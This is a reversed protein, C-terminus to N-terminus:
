NSYYIKYNYATSGHDNYVEVTVYGTATATFERPSTYGNYANMFIETGDNQWASVYLSGSTNQNSGNQWTITIRQGTSVALRYYDKTKPNLNAVGSSSYNPMNYHNAAYAFAGQVWVGERGAANVPAITYYYSVGGSVDYDTYSSGNVSGIKGPAAAKTSSRYINYSVADPVLEWGLAISSAGPSTAKIGTVMAPPLAAVGADTGDNIGYCYAMYNYRASSHDNKVEVTVYGSAAATFAQPSTYGNYANKFIETGDNQWASVYLSGSTNQSYGDEWSITYANGSTVPFRYYHKQKATLPVLRRKTLPPLAFYEEAFGFVAASKGTELGNVIASVAYYYSSGAAVATDTYSTNSSEGLYSYDKGNTSRYVKYNSANNVSSWSLPIETKGPRTIKLNPIETDAAVTVAATGSATEGSYSSWAAKVTLTRASEDGAVSLLGDQSIATASSNNGEVSWAVGSYSNSLEAEFKQTTGKALTVSSPSVTVTVSNDSGGGSNDNFLDCSNLLLFVTTLFLWLCSIRKENKM